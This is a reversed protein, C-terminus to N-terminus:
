RRGSLLRLIYFFMMAVSAFLELAAGVYRDNPWYRIIKSTDFLIAGGTFAIMALSFWTGMNWGFIVSGVIAVLAMIGGWRLMGGLFSFDKRTQFVILTLGTFAIATLIAASGIVGGGAYYEAYAIMPAFILGIGVVYLGLGLYQAGRSEARSALSRALWSIMMFGGLILLWSVNAMKQIITQALGSKFLYVEFLTFAAIAALLHGYVRVIFQGREEASSAVGAERMEEMTAAKAKVEPRRPDNPNNM